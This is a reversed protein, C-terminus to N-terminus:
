PMRSLVLDTFDREPTARASQLIRVPLYGLDPALWVELSQDYEHRHARRLKVAQLEGAPLKIGSSGELSFEWVQANDLGAVQLGIRDGTKYREPEGALMGALQILVSVRDQAGAMLAEDPKNASFQIRNVEYRFHTAQESRGTRTSSFRTPALGQAGLSGVSKETRSLLRGAAAQLSLEYNLGDTAWRLEGTASRAHGRSVIGGEFQLTVASPYRISHAAPSGPASALRKTPSDQSPNLTSIARSTIAIQATNIHALPRNLGNKAHELVAVVASPKEPAATSRGPAPQATARTQQAAIPPESQPPSQEELTVWRTNLSAARADGPQSMFTNPSALMALWVHVLVAAVTAWGLGRWPWAGRPRAGDAPKM